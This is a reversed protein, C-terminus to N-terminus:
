SGGSYMKPDAARLKDVNETIEKPDSTISIFVRVLHVPDSPKNGVLFACHLAQCDLRPITVAKEKCLKELERMLTESYAKTAERAALNKVIELQEDTAEM